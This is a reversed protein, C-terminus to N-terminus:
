EKIAGHRRNRKMFDKLSKVLDKKSFSPWMKKSYYWESYTSQWPMFNSSRKEGSTRIVLDLPHLILTYLNNEIDQTTLVTKGSSIALNVARVIEQRGGYNMCPNLVFESKNQTDAMLNRAKVRVNEPIRSDSLDGSFIIRINENQYEKRFEDIMQDFLEMLYDVEKKPRNWNETSFCYLSLNKIGLERIFRVHKKLNELGFKHGVSRDFGRRKAWRGNGDMIIGIHKPIRPDTKIKDINM